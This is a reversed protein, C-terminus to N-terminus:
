KKLDNVVKPTNELLSSSRGDGGPKTVPKLFSKPDMGSEKLASMVVPGAGPLLFESAVAQGIPSNLVDKFADLLQKQV